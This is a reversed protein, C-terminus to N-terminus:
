DHVIRFLNQYRSAINVQKRLRVELDAREWWDVWVKGGRRLADLHDFLPATIRPFGVVLIGKCKEHALTDRIDKVDSKGVSTERAKVQVLVRRFIRLKKGDSGRPARGDRGPHVYWEVIIDKGGDREHVSGVPKVWTVGDEVELLDRVLDELAQDDIESAWEFRADSLFIAAEERRKQECLYREEEFQEMGCSSRMIVISGMGVGILHSDIPILVVNGTGPVNQGGDILSIISLLQARAQLDFANRMQETRVVHRQIADLAHKPAFTELVARLRAAAEQTIQAGSIGKKWFYFYTWQALSRRQFWYGKSNRRVGVLACVANMWAPREKWHPDEEKTPDGDLDFIQALWEGTAQGEKQLAMGRAHVEEPAFIGGTPQSIELIRAYIEEPAATMPNLVDHLRVSTIEKARLVAAWLASLLDHLDTREGAFALSTSRVSMFLEAVGQDDFPQAVVAFM